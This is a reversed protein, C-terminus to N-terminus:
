CPTAEKNNKCANSIIGAHTVCVCVPNREGCLLQMSIVGDESHRLVLDGRLVSRGLLNNPSCHYLHANLSANGCLSILVTRFIRRPFAPSNQNSLALPLSPLSATKTIPIEIDEHRIMWVRIFGPIDGLMNEHRSRLTPTWKSSFFAHMM